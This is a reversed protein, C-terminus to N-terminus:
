RGSPPPEEKSQCCETLRIVANFEMQAWVRPLMPSREAEMRTGWHAPISVSQGTTVSTFDVTGRLVGVQASVPQAQVFWDASGSSVSRTGASTSVEFTFAGAAPPVVVRLLGKSLSLKAHRGGAVDYGAVTLNSDSAVSIVSGDAMQLKVNSDTPVDITEGVQVADGRKLAHANATCSGAVGAVTAAQTAHAASSGLVLGLTALLVGISAHRMLKM